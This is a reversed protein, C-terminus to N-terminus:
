AKDDKVEAIISRKMEDRKRLYRAISGIIMPAGTAVFAGLALLAGEISLVAVGCLTVFVGIAVILSLYGETYGRRELWAVFANYGIGFLVLGLFVAAIAGFDLRIECSM